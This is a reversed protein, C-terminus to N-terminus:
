RLAWIGFYYPSWGARLDLGCFALTSFGAADLMREVAERDWAWYHEPNGHDNWAELPTSLVLNATRDRILELVIAPDDLHELTESCIYLDVPDIQRLTEELPGTIPYGPAFDGLIATRSVGRAIRGDGCSLDAVRYGFGATAGDSLEAVGRALAITTAVRVEHDRWRSSDHPIDYLEQLEDTTYAPRLRERRM